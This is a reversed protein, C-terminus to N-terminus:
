QEGAQLEEPAVGGEHAALIRARAESGDAPRLELDVETEDPLGSIDPWDAVVASFIREVRGLPIEVDGLLLSQESETKIQGPKGVFAPKMSKVGGVTTAIALSSWRESITEGSLLRYAADIDVYDQRSLKEPVAFYVGTKRQIDELTQLIELYAGYDTAPADTIPVPALLERGKSMLVVSRKPKFEALLRLTPIIVGPLANEPRRYAYNFLVSKKIEDLRLTFIVCDTPDRFVLEGGRQGASATRAILPLQAVPSGNDDIIRLETGELEAMAREIPKLEIINRSSNEIPVGGVSVEVKDVFNAPITVASGYDIADRMAKRTARGEDTPPLSVEARLTRPRDKEAGQYRPWTSVEVRGDPQISLGFSYYPDISNLRSHIAQLREVAEPVGRALAAQARTLEQINRVIEDPTEPRLFYRVVDPYKAAQGDLWTRGLWVCDFPYHSSIEDFWSIQRATPDVPIVLHWRVPNHEAAKSLSDAIVHRKSATVHGAFSKIQYIVMGDSSNLQVDIGNDGGATNIRTSSPHDRSLFVSVISEFTRSDLNRWPIPAEAAPAQDSAPEHRGVRHQVIYLQLLASLHDTAKLARETIAPTLSERAHMLRNRLNRLFELDSLAEPSFLSSERLKEVAYSYPSRLHRYDSEAITTLQKEIGAWARLFQLEISDSSGVLQGIRPASVDLLGALDKYSYGRAYMATVARARIEAIQDINDQQEAIAATARRFLELPDEITYLDKPTTM